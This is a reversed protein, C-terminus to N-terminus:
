SVPQLPAVPAVPTAADAHQSLEADMTGLVMHKWMRFDGRLSWVAHKPSGFTAPRNKEFVYHGIWAMGYGAVPALLLASPNLAAVAVCGIAVSTGIFHMRRCVPDKHQSVYFPWFEEFSQFDQSEGM